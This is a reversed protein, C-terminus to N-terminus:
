FYKITRRLLNNIEWFNIFKKDEEEKEEKEEEM